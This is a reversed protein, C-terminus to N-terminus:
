MCVPLPVFLISVQLRLSPERLQEHRRTTTPLRRNDDTVERLRQYGGDDNADEWQRQRGMNYDAAEWWQRYGGDDTADKMM